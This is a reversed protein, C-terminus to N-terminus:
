MGLVIFLNLIILGFLGSVIVSEYVFRSIHQGLFIIPLKASNM